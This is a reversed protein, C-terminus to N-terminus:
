RLYVNKLANKLLTIPESDDRAYARWIAWCCYDAIQLDFNSKSAHHLFVHPGRGSVRHLLESIVSKEIAKRKRVVPLADSFSFIPMSMGNVENKILPGMFEPYFKEPNQLHPPLKSKEIVYASIAGHPLIEAIVELVRRRVHRNDESAHFYELAFGEKLLTYRLDALRAIRGPSWPLNVCVVILWRTGNPGFDFNGAEDLYLNIASM